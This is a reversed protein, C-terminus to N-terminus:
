FIIASLLNRIITFKLATKIVEAKVHMSSFIEETLDLNKKLFVRM